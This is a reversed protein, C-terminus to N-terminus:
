IFYYIILYLDTIFNPLQRVPPQQTSNNLVIENGTNPDIIKIAANKRRLRLEPAQIPTTAPQQPVQLPQSNSAMEMPQSQVILPPGHSNQANSINAM